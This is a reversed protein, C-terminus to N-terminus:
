AAVRYEQYNDPPLGHDESGVLNDFYAWTRRALGRLFDTQAASLRVARRRLPLSVWWAIAPSAAWLLLVPAAALLLQPAAFGLHLATTAALAPGIWMAQLHRAPTSRRAAQRDAEGSPNGE